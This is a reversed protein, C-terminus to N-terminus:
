QSWATWSGVGNVINHALSYTYGSALGMGTCNVAAGSWSGTYESLGAGSRYYFRKGSKSVAGVVFDGDAQCYYFNYVDTAYAGRALSFKSIGEVPGVGTSGTIGSYGLPYRGNIAHFEMVKSAFNRIDSQVATDNARNQIGTYAVVSIAALIAIVVIVILLEVITFGARTIKPSIGM